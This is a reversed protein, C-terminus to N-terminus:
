IDLDGLGGPRDSVFLLLLGDASLHPNYDTSPSNVNPGLNTPANWPDSRTARTAIWIDQGGYGDPRRPAYCLTLGDLSIMCQFEDSSTNVLPGLNEPPSFDAEVTERKSVWMDTGGYGGPLDAFFYYELLDATGWGLAGGTSELIATRIADPDDEWTGLLVPDDWLNDGEARGAVWRSHGSWGFEWRTFSLSSGDLSVCQDGDHKPSNIAPGLNTPTGFTFDAYAPPTDLGSLLCLGLLPTVFMPIEFLKMEYRGKQRLAVSITSNTNVPREASFVLQCDFPMNIVRRLVHLTSLPADAPTRGSLAASWWQMDTYAKGHKNLYEYYRARSFYAYADQPDADIRRSYFAIIERVHEDLTQGPGFAEVTPVNPDLRAVWIEDYPPGLCFTLETAVPSWCTTTIPADLAKSFDRSRLDYVWLGAKERQATGGGLCVEHGTPSWATVGWTMSPMPCKAVHEQSALDKIRLGGAHFFSVRQNDPSVTPLYKSCKMIKKPEGDQEILSSSRLTYDRRSLYYIHESDSGWSPWSGQALRRPETGDSRMVWVEEDTVPPQAQGPEATALEELRLNQRDRVFAIYEGDPSWRPDKGPVILLDTEKTAPDYTAVGSSGQVGLSFALRAGDPSWAASFGDKTLRHGQASVHHYTEEAEVMPLFAAGVPQDDDPHWSRGAELTDFVYKACWEQFERRAQHGPAIIQHFLTTAQDYKGLATLAGFIQYQFVPTDPLLGLCRQAEAILREYDGIRLFIECRQTS